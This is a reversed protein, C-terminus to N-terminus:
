VGLASRAARLERATSSSTAGPQCDAFWRQLAKALALPQEIPLMHGADPVQSVTVRRLRARLADRYRPPVVDHEGWSLLTPTSLEAPKSQERAHLEELLQALGRVDSQHYPYDLWAAERAFLPRTAEAFRELERPSAEGARRQMRRRLAAALDLEALRTAYRQAMDLLAEGDAPIPSLAAVSALQSELMPACALALTAGLSHGILHGRADGLVQAVADEVADCTLAALEEPYRYLYIPHRSGLEDLLPALYSPEPGPGGPLVIIPDGTTGPSALQWSGVSALFTQAPSNHSLQDGVHDSEDM